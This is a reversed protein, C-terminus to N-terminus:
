FNNMHVQPTQEQKNKQQICAELFEIAEDVIDEPYMAWDNELVIDACEEDSYFEFGEDFDSDDGITSDKTIKPVQYGFKKLNNCIKQSFKQRGADSFREKLFENIKQLNDLDLDKIAKKPPVFIISGLIKLVDDSPQNFNMNFQGHLYKFQIM